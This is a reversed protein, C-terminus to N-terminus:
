LSKLALLREWRDSVGAEAQLLLGAAHEPNQRTLVSFRTENYLFDSLPLSPEKSDLSFREGRAKLPNYRFLPWYGTKVANVQQHAGNAM